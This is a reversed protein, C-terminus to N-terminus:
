SGDHIGITLSAWIGVFGGWFRIFVSPGLDRTSPGLIEGPLHPEAWFNTQMMSVYIYIYNCM